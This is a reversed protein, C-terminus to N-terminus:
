MLVFRFFPPLSFPVIEECNDPVLIRFCCAVVPVILHALVTKNINSLGDFLEFLVFLFMDFWDQQM